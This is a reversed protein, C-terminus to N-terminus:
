RARALLIKYLKNKKRKNIKQNSKLVSKNWM